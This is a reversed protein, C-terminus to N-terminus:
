GRRDNVEKQKKKQIEDFEAQNVKTGKRPEKIKIKRKPNLTIKNCTILQRDNEVELILGPLGHYVAPGTSVPIQTTYWAIVTVEIEKTKFKKDVDKKNVSFSLYNNNDRVLRKIIKTAKYCTYNGITKTEKTLKWNHNELKDKIIFIKGYLDNEVSYRDEKINKYLKEGSFGIDSNFRTGEQGLAELKEEKQYISNAEDFKLVYTEKFGANIKKNFASLLSNMALNSTLKSSDMKVNRKKVEGTYIAEGTFNQQAFVTANILIFCLILNHTISKM